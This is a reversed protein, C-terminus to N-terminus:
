GRYDNLDVKKYTVTEYKEKDIDSPITADFGVKATRTKQGPM